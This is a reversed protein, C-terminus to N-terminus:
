LYPRLEVRRNCANSGDAAVKLAVEHTPVDIIWFGNYFDPDKFLSGKEVKGVGKRNDILTATDPLGIGAATVWYGDARLQDNFKNIQEMENPEALDTGNHVVFLIYRM